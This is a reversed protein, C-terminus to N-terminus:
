DIRYDIVYPMTSKGSEVREGCAPPRLPKGMKEEGEARLLGVPFRDITEKICM